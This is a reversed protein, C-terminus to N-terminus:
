VGTRQRDSAIQDLLRIQRRTIEAATSRHVGILPRPPTGPHAVKRAFAWGGATKFRLMTKKKPVITHPRTGEHAYHAVKLRSGVKLRKGSLSFVNGTAGRTFSRKLRRSRELVRGHGKAAVTNPRNRAWPTMTGPDVGREFAERVAELYVM